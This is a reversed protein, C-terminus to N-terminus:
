TFFAGPRCVVPPHLLQFAWGATPTDRGVMPLALVQAGLNQCAQAILSANLDEGHGNSLFLITTMPAVDDGENISNISFDM